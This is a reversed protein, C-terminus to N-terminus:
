LLKFSSISGFFDLNAEIRFIQEINSPLNFRAFSLKQKIICRRRCQHQVRSIRSCTIHQHRESNLRNLESLQFHVGAPRARWSAFVKRIVPALEPMPSSAAFTKAACPPCIMIAHRSMARASAAALSISFAAPRLPAACQTCNSKLSMADIRAPAADIASSPMFISAKIRFAPMMAGGVRRSVRSPKSICIPTFWKPCKKSAPKSASFVIACSPRKTDTDEVM